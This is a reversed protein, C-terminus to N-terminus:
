SGADDIPEAGRVKEMPAGSGDDLRFVLIIHYGLEKATRDRFVKFQGAFAAVDGPDALVARGDEDHM